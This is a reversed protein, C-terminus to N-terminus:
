LPDLRAFAVVLWKTGAGEFNVQVRAHAGNGEYNLVVGEGFKAHRVRQGLELSDEGGGLPGAGAVPGGRASGRGGSARRGGGFRSGLGPPVARGGGIRVESLVETPLERLFRSPSPYYDTGHLRRSEAHTLYVTQRARTIGVYCLRREEELQVPDEVSRQHPFLGDEMGALFVVPFELGKASHLTMLQVCDDFDGGQADGAELAAHALFRDLESAGDTEEELSNAFQRAATVLEDLNEIRALGREGKEKRFHPVLGSREVVDAVREELTAEGARERLDGVLRLFREVASASRGSLRGEAVAHSAASWLPASRARALERLADVTKTGIGRPPYNVVREFSADDHVNAALRLYALAYKIEAREYFRMGGHVRYSMGASLLAEELARSQASVRYLVACEDRRGGEDVHAQVRGVIFRAEDLDNYAAYVYLPEGRSGSTWLEKGLRGQNHAILANAASLINASSRYNQELRFIHVGVYDKPFRQINEIRAGRWGYISQDDDGVMFLSGAAGALLRLWAYQIANTDQFEDVLLYRFRSQYHARIPEVDCLLEHSRLLLEAFDVLGARECAQEYRRYIEIMQRIWVDGREELHHARLGEDKRASIFAQAQRAPWRGEDLGVERLLRRLLRLQDESDLIQFSQELGAESWHRRLMRHALGHFTGVWMGRAPGGLPSQLMAEARARMEGAAKNTFTVALIGHPGVEGTALLWAMRHVLVRTKGSGAGALVLAHQDTATVAERQADNLPDLIHTVDM